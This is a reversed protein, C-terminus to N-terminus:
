NREKCPVCQAAVPVLILRKIPIQKGCSTCIGYTGKNVKVLAEDFKRLCKQLTTLRAGNVSPINPWACEAMHSKIVKGNKLEEKFNTQVRHLEEKLEERKSILMKKIGDGIFEGNGVFEKTEGMIEVM